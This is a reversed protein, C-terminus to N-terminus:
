NDEYNQYLNAHYGKSVFKEPEVQNIFAQEAFSLFYFYYIALQSECNPYGQTQWENIQLQLSGNKIDLPLTLILIILVVFYM